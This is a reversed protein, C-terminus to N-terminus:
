DTRGDDDLVLFGEADRFVLPSSIAEDSGLSLFRGVIVAFTILAVVGLILIM